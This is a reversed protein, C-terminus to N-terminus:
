LKLLYLAPPTTQRDVSKTSTLLTVTSEISSAITSEFQSPQWISRIWLNSKMAGVTKTNWHSTGMDVKMMPM